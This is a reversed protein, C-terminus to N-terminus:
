IGKFSYISFMMNRATSDSTSYKHLSTVKWYYLSGPRGVHILPKYVTARGWFTASLLVWSVDTVHEINLFVTSMTVPVNLTRENSINLSFHKSPRSNPRKMLLGTNADVVSRCRSANMELVISILTIGVWMCSLDLRWAVQVSSLPQLILLFTGYLISEISLTHSFSWWLCATDQCMSTSQATHWPSTDRLVASCKWRWIDAWCVSREDVTPFRILSQLNKWILNLTPPITTSGGCDIPARCTGGRVGMDM